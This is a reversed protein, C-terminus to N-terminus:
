ESARGTGARRDVPNAAGVVALLADIHRRTNQVQVAVTAAASATEEAHVANNKTVTETRLIAKRIHNIGRAQEESSAAIQNVAESGAALTESMARFVSHAQSVLEVGVGVDSVTNDIIEGIRRASEASRHALSCVEHAVVSFGASAAGARAAEVAANLALIHTQFAIDDIGKVVGAVERSSKSITDMSKKLDNMAQMAQDMAHTAQSMFRDTERARDANGHTTASIEEISASTERISSAQERSDHATARGSEAMRESAQAAEDAADAADQVGEIVELIPGTIARRITLHVGLGALVLTLAFALLALRRRHGSSAELASLNEHLDRSFEEKVQKLSNKISETRSALERMQGETVATLNAPNSLMTGYTDNGDALFRSIAGALRRAEASREPALGEIAAVANLGQVVQRGEEAAHDLCAADQIIVADGLAKV